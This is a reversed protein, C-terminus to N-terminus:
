DKGENKISEILEKIAKSLDANSEDFKGIAIIERKNDKLCINCVVNLKVFKEDSFDACINYPCGECYDGFAKSYRRREEDPPIQALRPDDGKGASM